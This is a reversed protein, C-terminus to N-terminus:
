PGNLTVMSVPSFGQQMYRKITRVSKNIKEGIEAYTLGDIQSLLFVERVTKPLGDLAQDILQLTELLIERDEPSLIDPEPLAALAELYAREVDRRRFHDVLM